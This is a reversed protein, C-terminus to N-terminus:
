EKNVVYGEGKIKETSLIDCVNLYTVEDTTKVIITKSEFNIEDSLIGVKKKFSNDLRAAQDHDVLGDVQITYILTTPTNANQSHGSSSLLISFLLTTSIKLFKNKM